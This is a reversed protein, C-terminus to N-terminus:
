KWPFMEERIVMSLVGIVSKGKVVSVQKEKLTKM